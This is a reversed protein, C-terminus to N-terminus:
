NPNNAAEENLRDKAYVIPLSDTGNLGPRWKFMEYLRKNEEEGDIIVMNGDKDWTVM